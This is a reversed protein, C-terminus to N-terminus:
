CTLIQALSDVLCFESDLGDEESEQSRFETNQIKLENVRGWDFRRFEKLDPHFIFFGNGDTLELYGSWSRGSYDVRRKVVVLSKVEVPIPNFQKREMVPGLMSLM